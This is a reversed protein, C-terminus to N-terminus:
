NIRYGECLGGEEKADRMDYSMMLLIYQLTMLLASLLIVFGIGYAIFSNREFNGKSTKHRAKIFILFGFLSGFFGIAFCVAAYDWLILDFVAFSSTSLAATFFVMSSSTATVVAPHVGMSLLIPCTVM